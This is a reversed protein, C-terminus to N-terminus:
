EYLSEIETFWFCEEEICTADISRLSEKLRSIVSEPIDQDIFADEGNLEIARDIMKVYALLCEAFQNISSNIFVEQDRNSHHLVVIHEQNEVICISDSASTSGLFWYKQFAEPLNFVSTIPRICSKLSTFELYPPPSEPLGGVTLFTKVNDSFNTSMLDDANCKILPGNKGVDWKENFEEPVIM